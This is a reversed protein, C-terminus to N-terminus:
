EKIDLNRKAGVSIGVTIRQDFKQLLKQYAVYEMWKSMAIEPTLTGSNVASLVSSVVAKQLAAVENNIYPKMNQIEAGSRILGLEEPTPSLATGM